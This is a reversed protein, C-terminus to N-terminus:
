LVIRCKGEVCGLFGLVSVRTPVNEAMEDHLSRIDSNPIYSCVSREFLSCNFVSANKALLISSRGKLM